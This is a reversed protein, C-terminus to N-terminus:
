QGWRHLQSHVYSHQAGTGRAMWVKSRSRFFFYDVEFKAYLRVQDWFSKFNETPAKRGDGAFSIMWDVENKSHVSLKTIGWFHSWKPGCQGLKLSCTGDPVSIVWDVLIKSHVSVKDTKQFSEMKLWMPGNETWQYDWFAGLHHNGVMVM